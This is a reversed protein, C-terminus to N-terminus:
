KTTEVTWWMTLRYLNRTTEFIFSAATYMNVIIGHLCQVNGKSKDTLEGSIAAFVAAYRTARISSCTSLLLSSSGACAAVPSMSPCTYKAGGIMHYVRGNEDQAVATKKEVAAKKTKKAAAMAVAAGVEKNKRTKQDCQKQLTAGLTDQM